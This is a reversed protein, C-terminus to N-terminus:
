QATVGLPRGDFPKVVGFELTRHGYYVARGPQVIIRGIGFVALLKDYFAGAADLDNTGVTSHGPLGRVEELQVAQKRNVSVDNM